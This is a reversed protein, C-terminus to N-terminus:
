RNKPDLDNVYKLIHKFLLGAKDDPLKEVTHLLDCYLVFSKKDKM